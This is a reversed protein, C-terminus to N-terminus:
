RLHDEGQGAVGPNSLYMAILWGLLIPGCIIESGVAIQGGITAPVIDGLGVTALTVLSFYLWAVSSHESRWALHFTGPSMMNLGCFLSAFGLVLVATVLMFFVSRNSGPEVQIAWDKTFAPLRLDWHVTDFSGLVFRRLVATIALVLAAIAAALGSAFVVGAHAWSWEGAVLTAASLLPVVAYTTWVLNVVLKRWPSGAGELRTLTSLFMRKHELGEEIAQWNVANGSAAVWRARKIAKGGETSIFRIGDLMSLVKLSVIATLGLLLADGVKM